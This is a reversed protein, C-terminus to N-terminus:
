VWTLAGGRRLIVHFIRGDGGATIAPAARSLPGSFACRHDSRCRRSRAQNLMAGFLVRSSKVEKRCMAIQAEWAAVTPCVALDEVGGAGAAGGGGDGGCLMHFHETIAETLRAYLAYTEAACVRLCRRM